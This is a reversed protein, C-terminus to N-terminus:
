RGKDVARMQTAADTTANPVQAGIPTKSGIDEAIKSTPKPKPEPAPPVAPKATPSAAEEVGETVEQQIEMEGDASVPEFKDRFSHAQADTLPVTEGPAVSRGDHVHRFGQKLRYEKTPRVMRTRVTETRTTEVVQQNGKQDGSATQRYGAGGGSAANRVETQSKTTTTGGVPNVTGPQTGQNPASPQSSGPTPSGPPNPTPSTGPTSKPTSGKTTDAM